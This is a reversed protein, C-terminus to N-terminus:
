LPIWGHGLKRYDLVSHSICGQKPCKIDHSAGRPVCSSDQGLRRHSGDDERPQIVPAHVQAPVTRGVKTGAPLPFPFNLNTCRFSNVARPSFRGAERLLAASIKRPWCNGEPQAV